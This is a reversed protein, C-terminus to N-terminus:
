RSVLAYVVPLGYIIGALLGVLGALNIALVGLEKWSDFM